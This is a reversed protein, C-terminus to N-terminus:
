MIYLDRVIHSNCYFDVVLGIILDNVFLYISSMVIKGVKILKNRGVFLFYVTVCFVNKFVVM